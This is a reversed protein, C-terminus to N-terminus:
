QLIDNHYPDWFTAAYEMSPRHVLMLYASAKVSSSCSNLNQKPFKLTKNAKTVVHDIHSSWSLKNDLLIGLYPHQTSTSM